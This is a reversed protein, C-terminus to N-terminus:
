AFIFQGPNLLAKPDLQDKISQMVPHTAGPPGWIAESSLRDSASSNVVAHGDFEQVRARISQVATLVDSDAMEDFRVNIIGNAAHAQISCGSHDNLIQQVFRCVSSPSLTAQVVLSGGAPFETMQKWLDGAIQGTRTQAGIAGEQAWESTLTNIMWDVEPRTGELGVVLSMGRHSALGNLETTGTMLEVAIPSTRSRSLAALLREAQDLDTLPQCVLASSEPLPRVKLTVQSIVGLTGMSGTLLKCFDYGAVNKVVRGGGKFPTGRGDIASIGIVYDRMTGCGFRRPGSTNTAVVGGLTAQHSQPVDVPLWQRETALVGALAAMTIGAEVTITMDRAPYDIVRNLGTMLVSTGPKRAFASVLQGTAGGVPYIALDRAFADSVIAALENQDAPAVQQTM